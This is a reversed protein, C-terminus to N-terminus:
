VARIFLSIPKPGLIEDVLLYHGGRWQGESTPPVGGWDGTQCPSRFVNSADTRSAKAFDPLDDARCVSQLTSTAYDTKALAPQKTLNLTSGSLLRRQLIPTKHKLTGGTTMM